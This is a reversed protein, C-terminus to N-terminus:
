QTQLIKIADNDKYKRALDLLEKKLQQVIASSSMSTYLNNMEHPDKKIDYLEFDNHPGYFRILKYQETRIGLHPAVRHPEPYEYYHYYLSTRWGKASQPQKLLAAFNSGQMEANPKGGALALLTPALDINVVMQNVQTGPQIVGPYRMV